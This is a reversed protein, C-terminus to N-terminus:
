SLKKSLDQLLDKHDKSDISRSLVKEAGIIILRGVQEQLDLKAQNLSQELQRHGSIVISNKEQIAEMKAKDIIQSAQNTANIIIEESKERSEKIKQKINIEAERLVLHGREAAALGDSIKKRRDILAKELLPWVIKMTFLVFIAFTIMEGLLTANINM